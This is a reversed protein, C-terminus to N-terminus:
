RLLEKGQKLQKRDIKGNQNTPLTESREYVTPVMYDPLVQRLYNRLDAENIPQTLSYFLFLEEVGVADERIDAVVQMIGPYSLAVAEIEELEIRYGKFKVQNDLRGLYQICGDDLMRGYDGTRYLSGYKVNEHFIFKKDTLELDNVYGPSLAIGSVCIEGKVGIRVPELYENMIYVEMNEIPRGVDILVKDTIDSYTVFATVETPGYLNYIRADPCNAKIMELLYGPIKEAGFMFSKVHSMFSLNRHYMTLLQLRTPAILVTDIGHKEFLRRILVPNKQEKENALVVTLGKCLALITEPVSMDFSLNSLCMMTRGPSIGVVDTGHLILNVIGAQRIKVGKPKGTSGSTYIIYATHDSYDIHENFAETAQVMTQKSTDIIRYDAYQDMIEPLDTLIAAAHNEDLMYVTRAKPAGPEIPMYAAGVKVGAFMAALAIPTRSHILGVIDGQKIHNMQLMAALRDVTHIFAEYTTVTDEFVVAAVNPQQSATKAIIEYM